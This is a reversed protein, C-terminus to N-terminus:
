QGKIYITCRAKRLLGGCETRSDFVSNNNYGMGGM